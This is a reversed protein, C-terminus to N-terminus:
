PAKRLEEFWNQVLVMRTPPAPPIDVQRVMLFRQGDASVDYSRSPGSSIVGSPLPFLTVPAGLSLGAPTVSVSVSRVKQAGPGPELYFLERGDRRWAPASGGNGSVLIRPGPGPHPQVYVEPRGSETSSYALWRGDPSFAAFTENAPTTAFAVPKAGAEDTNVIWIDASSSADETVFALKGGPAWSTPAGGIRGTGAISGATGSGDGARWAIERLSSLTAFAVRGDPSWEGWIVREGNPTLATQLSRAVDYMWLRNGGDFLSASTTAVIRGGDPSIRAAIYERRPAPLPEVPGDRGVWVLERERDIGVGGTVYVLSAASLAFQGAGADEASAGMNAAQMVDDAVALPAGTLTLGKPDFGAAMLKGRRVFVIQGSAYRADAGDELLVREEGTALTRVVIQADDWRFISRQRTYLIAAGGPLVSPLIRSYEDPAIESIREPSGGGAPVRWLGDFTGFVIFDGDGWSLGIVRRDATPVRAVSTAATANARVPLRRIEGEISYAISAGDPSFVPNSAGSTNPVATAELSDLRRVYLQWGIDGGVFGRFVLTSGDPSLAFATRNPRLGLNVPATPSWPRQDFANVALLTRKVGGTAPVPKLSWAATGAIAAAVAAAGVIPLFSPRRLPVLPAPVSVEDPRVALADAIELRADAIAHLRERPDKTLCRRLLRRISPPTEVPLDGWSPEARLIAALTDAVEDGAYPRRGTLMEFLVCGFAWIDSRRDAPKGRAQEPAMYAATGLLMGAGTILVPSTFTPSATVDPGAFTALISSSASPAEPAALSKALGFDLVKVTGDPRLKINAPKLDRHVIGQEHAAALADAIQRAIPLAEDLPMAGQLLRDALTPGDVLELVLATVHGGERQEELGYIAGINPHNLSALVQAERTFRALREADAAVAQPLVKLAVDRNLRSDRARYVEGMAGEGLPSSIEFPGFRTGPPLTM